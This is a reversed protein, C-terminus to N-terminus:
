APGLRAERLRTRVACAAPRVQHNFGDWRHQMLVGNIDLLVLPRRADGAPQRKKSSFEFPRSQM